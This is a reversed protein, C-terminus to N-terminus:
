EADGDDDGGMSLLVFTILPVSIGVILLARIAIEASFTVFMDVALLAAIAGILAMYGIRLAIRKHQDFLEDQLVSQVKAKSVRGAYVLFMFSALAWGIAGILVSFVIVLNPEDGGWGREVVLDEALQGGQWVVFSLAALSLTMDRQRILKNITDM